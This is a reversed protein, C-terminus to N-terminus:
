NRTSQLSTSSTDAGHEMGQRDEGELGTVEDLEHRGGVLSGTRNSTERM